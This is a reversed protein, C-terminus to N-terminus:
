RVPLHRDPFCEPFILGASIGGASARLAPRRQQRGRVDGAAPLQSSRARRRSPRPQGAAAVDDADAGDGSIAPADTAGAVVAAFGGEGGIQFGEAVPERPVTDGDGGDFGAEGVGHKQCVGGFGEPDDGGGFGSGLNNLGDFFLFLGDVDGGAPTEDAEDDAVDWRENEATETYLILFEPTLPM